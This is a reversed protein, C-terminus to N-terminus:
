NKCNYGEQMLLSIFSKVDTKDIGIKNFYDDVNIDQYYYITKNGLDQYQQTNQTFLYQLTNNYLEENSYTLNYGM